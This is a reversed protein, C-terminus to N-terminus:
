GNLNKYAADAKQKDIGIEILRPLWIIGKSNYSTSYMNEDSPLERDPEISYLKGSPYEWLQYKKQKVDLYELSACADEVTEYLSEAIYTDENQYAFIWYTKNTPDNRNM